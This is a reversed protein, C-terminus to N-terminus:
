RNNPITAKGGDPINIIHIRNKTEYTITDNNLSVKKVHHITKTTGYQDTIKIYDNSKAPTWQLSGISVCLEIVALVIILAGIFHEHFKTIFYIALIILLWGLTWGLGNNFQDM